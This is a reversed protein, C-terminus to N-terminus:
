CQDYAAYRVHREHFYNRIIDPRKQTSHMYARVGEMMELQNYPHHSRFANAKVDQNVLEDPNLEPSYSPLYEVRIDDEHDAIWKKVKTAIHVPHRDIILYVKKEAHRILRKLFKLFIDTVFKGKFVMFSMEGRNAIASIMNCGFRKGTAHMIPTQGRRAFSRGVADDSRLGMEDGWFIVANDRKANAKIAPYEEHLWKQVAVPDQELARRMPKQPTFGWRALLRGITWVSRKIGFRKEILAGVAERTWLVYPLKIQDPCHDEISHVIQAAQWPLLPSQPKRGKKKARLAKMGGANYIKIWTDVSQRPVCFIRAVEVHTRGDLVATVAKMRLDEQAQSPLTRADHKKM